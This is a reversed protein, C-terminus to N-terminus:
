GHRYQLPSVLLWYSKMRRPICTTLLIKAFRIPMQDAEGQRGDHCM